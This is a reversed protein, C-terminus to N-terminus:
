YRKIFYRRIVWLIIGIGILIGFLIIVDKWTIKFPPLIEAIRENGAKDVARVSIKSRLSQDELLYPSIAKKFDGKGEKVEDYDIGSTKDQSVFVLYKKGEIEVIQPQFEEPPTADIMARFRVVESWDEGPLRQKLTFYYIGDGLGKYEMDGLWMLEGAPTDPTEDPEEAPDYSLLYSYEAGEILDWHLHLTTEKYWKNQDSHTESSVIPLGKPREIIQYNGERFSLEALTGLGDNLLVQSSDKFSLSAVTGQTVNPLVRFTISVLKGQGKFGNPIGGSFNIEGKENSYSPEQPWLSLVSGGKGIDLVELQTQPFNLYAAVANIEENETDIMLSVIFSDDQYVTQTQPSFYLTAAGASHSNLFYFISFLFILCFKSFLFYFTSNKGRFKTNQNNKM